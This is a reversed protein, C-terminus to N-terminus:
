IYVRLGNKDCEIYKKLRTENSGQNGILVSEYKGAFSAGKKDELLSSSRVAMPSHIDEMVGMIERTYNEPFKAALFKKKLEEFPVGGAKASEVLREFGNIKIFERFVSTTVFYTKPFRIKSLIASNEPELSSKKILEYVNQFGHGKGGLEGNGIKKFVSEPM